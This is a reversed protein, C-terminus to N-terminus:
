GNESAKVGRAALDILPQKFRSIVDVMPRNAALCLAGREDIDMYRTKTIVGIYLSEAVAGFMDALSLQLLADLAAWNPQTLNVVLEGELVEVYRHTTYPHMHSAASLNGYFTGAKPYLKRLEGICGQPELGFIGEEIDRIKYCWSLQELIVRQIANAEFHLRERIASNAFAFSQQLRVIAMAAAVVGHHNPKNEIAKVDELVSVIESRVATTSDFLLKTDVDLDFDKWHEGHTRMTYDISRNSMCYAKAGAFAYRKFQEPFNWPVGIVFM